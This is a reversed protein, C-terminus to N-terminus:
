TTGESHEPCPRLVAAHQLRPNCHARPRIAAVRLFLPNSLGELWLHGVGKAIVAIASDRIDETWHRTKQNYAAVNGFDPSM